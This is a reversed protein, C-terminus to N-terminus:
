RSMTAPNPNRTRVPPQMLGRSQPHPSVLPAWSPDSAQPFSDRPSRNGQRVEQPQLTIGPPVPIPALRFFFTSPASSLPSVTATRRQQGAGVPAGAYSVTPLQTQSATVPATLSSPVTTDAVLNPCASGELAQVPSRPATPRLESANGGRQGARRFRYALPKDEGDLDIVPVDDPPRRQRAGHEEEGDSLEVIARGCHGGEGLVTDAEPREQGQARLRKAPVGPRDDFDGSAARWTGDPNLEITAIDPDQQVLPDSLIQLPRCPLM